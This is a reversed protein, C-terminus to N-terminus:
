GERPHYFIPHGELLGEVIADLGPDHVPALEQFSKILLRPEQDALISLTHVPIMFRFFVCISPNFM